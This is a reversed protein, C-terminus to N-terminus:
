STLIEEIYVIWSLHGNVPALQKLRRKVVRRKLSALRRKGATNLSQKRPMKQGCCKCTTKPSTHTRYYHTHMWCLKDCTGKVLLSRASNSLGGRCGISRKAREFTYTRGRAEKTPRSMIQRRESNSLRDLGRV